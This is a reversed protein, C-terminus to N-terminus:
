TRDVEWQCGATSRSSPAPSTAARDDLVFRVTHALEAPDGRRELPILKRIADQAGPAMSNTMDTAFVGPVITNVPFGKHAVEGVLRHDLWDRVEHRFMEEEAGYRFDM